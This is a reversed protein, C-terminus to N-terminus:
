TRTRRSTTLERGHARGLGLRRPFRGPRDHEVVHLAAYVTSGTGTAYANGTPSSGGNGYVGTANTPAPRSRAPAPTSTPAPPPSSATDVPVPTAMIRSAPTATARRRRATPGSAPGRRQVHRRRWRRRQPLNSPRAPRRHARAPSLGAHGDGGRHRGDWRRRHDRRPLPRAPRRRQRRRRAGDHGNRDLSIGHAIRVDGSVKLGVLSTGIVPDQIFVTTFTPSANEVNVAARGFKIIESPDEGAVFEVTTSNTWTGGSGTEFHVGDWGLSPNAATFTVGSASLVAAPVVGSAASVVLRRGPQFEAVLGPLDWVPSWGPMVVADTNASFTFARRTTTPVEGVRALFPGLGYLARAVFWDCMLGRDYGSVFRDGLVSEFTLSTAMRPTAREM